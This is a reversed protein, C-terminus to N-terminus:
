SCCPKSGVPIASWSVNSSNNNSRSNSSNNDSVEDSKNINEQRQVLNNQINEPFGLPNTIKRITEENIKDLSNKIENSVELSKSLIEKRIVDLPTTDLNESSIGLLKSILEKYNTKKADDALSEKAKYAINAAEAHTNQFSDQINKSTSSAGINVQRTM